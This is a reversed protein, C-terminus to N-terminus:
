VFMGKWKGETFRGKSDLPSYAPLNYLKGVEFDEEGHGPATHVCGTGEELTVHEGLIVIHANDFTRQSPMENLFPHEYRLGELDKGEFEEVIEFKIDFSSLVMNAMDRAMIWYEEKGDFEVKLKAYVFDPHVCIAINAPLTWPTTTWIVIYENEKDKLRFKVFVSPDKVMRYEGRIEHEALATECRPCWHIVRLDKALLGKEWARKFSWWEAEMYDKNITMYPNDWDLWVGLNKFQETMIKMNRIAFEKCKDIFVDMGNKNEIDKKNKIKLETEVKVEIPLGHMDWGPQRRPAYGRMTMYRLVTDKIVKNLATGIHVEGSTFPPGDLWYWKKGEKNLYKEFIENEKWYEEIDSELKLPEYEGEAPKM